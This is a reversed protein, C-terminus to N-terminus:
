RGVIVGNNCVTPASMNPTVGPNNGQCVASVFGGGTRYVASTLTEIDNAYTPQPIAQHHVETNTVPGSIFYLYLRSSVNLDAGLENMNNAFTAKEFYFAQQARNIAGLNQKAEAVRAKEIQNFYNPLAIAALVGILIVVVLLEILTFGENKNKFVLQLILKTLTCKM